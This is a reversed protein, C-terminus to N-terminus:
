NLPVAAPTKVNAGEGEHVKQSLCQYGAAHPWRERYYDEQVNADQNASMFTTCLEYSKEGSVKYEFKEQTLPNKLDAELLYSFDNELVDLNEPMKGNERYYTIIAGDIVNFNDLIATDIKRNRTQAPSEVFFLSAAFFAIVLVLSGYCYGRIVLDKKGAVEGRKIDYLYFTFVAAAIFIAAMAKLVFKLTLDGDLFSNVTAILWGIMVVSTAFLIFYTLWKRIGSDKGLVGSFLNKYIQRATLYFIPAAIILMSIGLKLLGSDYRGRYQNIIDPISKNVIQFIIMGSALSMFILAVLSLMYFFAFKAANNQTNM